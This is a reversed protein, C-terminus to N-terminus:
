KEFGNMVYSPASVIINYTTEVEILNGAPSTSISGISQVITLETPDYTQNGEFTYNPMFGRILEYPDVVQIGGKGRQLIIPTYLLKVNSLVLSIPKNNPQTNKETFTQALIKQNFHFPLTTQPTNGKANLRALIEIQVDQIEAGYYQQTIQM